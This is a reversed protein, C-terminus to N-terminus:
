EGLVSAPDIGQAKLAEDVTTDNPYAKKFAKIAAPTMSHTGIKYTKVKEPPPAKFHTGAFILKPNIGTSKAIDEMDKNLMVQKGYQTRYMKEAQNLFDKRQGVTLKEGTVLSNYLNLVKEPVGTADRAQAQEGERVTSAPDVMKMYAFVASMDGAASPRAFANRLNDYSSQIEMTRKTVSHGTLEKRLDETNNITNQGQSNGLKAAQAINGQRQAYAKTWAESAAQADENSFDAGEFSPGTYKDKPVIVALKKPDLWISWAQDPTIRGDEVM